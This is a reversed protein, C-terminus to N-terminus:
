VGTRKVAKAVSAIKQIAQLQEDISQQPRGTKPLEPFFDRPTFPRGKKPNRNANALIAAVIGARRSDALPGFPELQAYSMWEVFEQSTM